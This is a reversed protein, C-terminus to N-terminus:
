QSLVYKVVQIYLNLRTRKGDEENEKPKQAKSAKKLLKRQEISRRHAVLHCTDDVSLLCKQALLKVEVESPNPNRRVYQKIVVSPPKSYLEVGYKKVYDVAKEAPLYHGSCFSTCTKCSGGWPRNEDPIPLPLISLSPGGEFWFRQQPGQQCIIHPCGKTFCPLLM